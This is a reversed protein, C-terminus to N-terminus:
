NAVLNDFGANDQITLPVLPQITSVFAFFLALGTMWRLRAVNPESFPSTGRTQVRRLLELFAIGAIAM